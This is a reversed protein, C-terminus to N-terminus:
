FPSIVIGQDLKGTTLDYDLTPRIFLPIGLLPVVFRYELQVQVEVQRAGTVLDRSATAKAVLLTDEGLQPIPVDLHADKRVTGSALKLSFPELTAKGAILNEFEIDSDGTFRMTALLEADPTFTLDVGATARLWFWDRDHTYTARGGHLLDFDM